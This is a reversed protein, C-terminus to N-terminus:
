LGSLLDEESMQVPKKVPKKKPPNKLDTKLERRAFEVQKPDAAAIIVDMDGNIPLTAEPDYSDGTRADTIAEVEYLTKSGISNVTYDIFCPRCKQKMGGETQFPVWLVTRVRKM